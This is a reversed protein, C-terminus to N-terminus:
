RPGRAEFAWLDIADLDFRPYGHVELAVAIQARHESAHHVAQTLLMARTATRPGDEDEFTMVRDPGAAEALLTADLEALYPAQAVVLEATWDRDLDSWPTGNLCSRYWEASGILHISLRGIGWNGPAYSVGFAEAPVTALHAFLAQNAWAMHRLGMSLDIM